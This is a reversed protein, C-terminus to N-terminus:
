MFKKIFRKVKGKKAETVALKKITEIDREKFARTFGPIESHDNKLTEDPISSTANYFEPINILYQIEDEFKGHPYTKTRRCMVFYTMALNKMEVDILGKYYDSVNYKAAYEKKLKYLFISDDVFSKMFKSTGGNNRYCYVINDITALKKAEPTLRISLNLDEGFYLPFSDVTNYIRKFFSVRFLRSCISVCYSGYGFFGYYIDQLIRNNDFTQLNLIAFSNDNLKVSKSFQLMKGAVIDCDEQEATKILIELANEPLLDDSDLFTCYSDDCDPLTLIATRRAMSLGGNEQHIVQIRKDKKVYEDCIKGSNDKSGDDVVIAEWNTYTQALLSNFCDKIYKEVNYVPILVYVKKSM